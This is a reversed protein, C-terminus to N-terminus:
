KKRILPVRIENELLEVVKKICDTCNLESIKLVIKPNEGIIDLLKKNDITLCLNSIKSTTSYQQIINNELKIINRYKENCMFLENNLVDILNKEKNLIRLFYFSFFFFIILSILLSNKRINLHLITRINM